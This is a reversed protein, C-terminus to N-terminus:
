EAYGGTSGFGGRSPAGENQQEDWVARVV